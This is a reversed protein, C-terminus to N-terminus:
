PQDAAPSASPSVLDASTQMDLLARAAGAGDHALERGNVDYLRCWASFGPAIYRGGPLRVSNWGPVGLPGPWYAGIQALEPATTHAHNRAAQADVLASYVMWLHGGRGRPSPELLPRYGAAALKLAAQRLLEWGEPADTDYALSRAQGSAYQCLAGRTKVGRLHERADNLTLPRPVTYYKKPGTRSMEIHQPAPGAIEVLLWAAADLLQANDM